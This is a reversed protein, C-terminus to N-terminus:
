ADTFNRHTVSDLEKLKSWKHLVNGFVDYFQIDATTETMKVLMFGQGDYYLKLEEPSWWKIDGKWAKSGGGSTFFEINSDADSIHELCHDHGNIYFDINNAKLIPLLHTVLDTTNGHHGASRITHHGVM